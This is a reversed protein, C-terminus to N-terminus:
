NADAVAGSSLLSAIEGEDYGIEKLLTATHEGPPCPPAPLVSCTRSFRPAPAPQTVGDVHVFTQREVVHPHRVAEVLSLVPAVCADKGAFIDCWQERTKTLIVDAIRSKTAPWQERDFQPPFENVDLGLGALFAGYFQPEIAGVSLHGGDATRYIGYFPAGGDLMNVAREDAWFGFAFAGYIAAMLSATGDIMAADVVQGQGSSRAELVASVVGLALYLAGGGFDGILNLPVIPTEKTGIAHLAGSLAIYNIDHGASASLPGRQGWGTMRGYVLSRNRKAVADPGLGLREAVGPRFGELLADSTELLRLVVEIGRPHKLDVRVSRRGRALVDYRPDSWSGFGAPQTRDIRVVDAGLDSLLMAAFPVPGIGGLEVIRLGTLPGM